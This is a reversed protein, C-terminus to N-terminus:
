IHIKEESYCWSSSSHHKCTSENSCTSFPCVESKEANLILKWGQIWILVSDVLTQSAAEADEKTRATTLISVGDTFIAVVADNYLASALKNIYFLFLLPM